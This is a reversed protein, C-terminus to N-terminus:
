KINYMDLIQGIDFDTRRARLLNAVLSVSTKQIDDNTM